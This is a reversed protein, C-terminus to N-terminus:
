EEIVVEVVGNVKEDVGIISRFGVQLKSSNDLGSIIIKYQNNTKKLYVMLEAELASDVVEQYRTIPDRDKIVIVLPNEKTSVIEEGARTVRSEEYLTNKTTIDVFHQEVGLIGGLVFIFVGVFGIQIASYNRINLLRTWWTNNKINRSGIKSELRNWQRQISVPEISVENEIKKIADLLIKRESLKKEAESQNNVM